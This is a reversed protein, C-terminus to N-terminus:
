NKWKFGDKVVINEWGKIFYMDIAKWSTDCYNYDPFLAIKEANATRVVDCMGSRIGVFVGAREVVSKMESIKPSIAITGELPAEDGVVNTFCQKGKSKYYDVIQKWICLPLLTVSKAYPSLIVGNNKEIEELKPYDSFYMPEVPITDKPLGFVGCCYIQELPIKRAYLANSLNIVYPRDQHPIFFDSTRGYLAGQIIEDMDRQKFVEVKHEGFMYIVQQCAKGIVCIVYSKISRREIFYPLYSMMFYIDGLAAFPCLFFFHRPYKERLREYNNAGREARHRMREITKGSLSYDAYTNYDVLKRIQGKYGLRKLQEAMAAYARAVICVITDNEDNVEIQQPSIIKIDRYFSGQKNENNDLIAVISYGRSLLLNALEETANCHGFLYIQKDHLNMEKEIDDLASIMEEYHLKDM